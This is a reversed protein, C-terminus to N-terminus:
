ETLQDRCLNSDINLTNCTPEIYSGSINFTPPIWGFSRVILQCLNANLQPALEFTFLCKREARCIIYMGNRHKELDAMVVMASADNKLNM